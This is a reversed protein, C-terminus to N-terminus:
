EIYIIQKEGMFDICEATTVLTLAGDNETVSYQSNLILTNKYKNYLNETHKDAAVYLLIESDAEAEKYYARTIKAISVPLKISGFMMFSEDSYETYKEESKNFLGLPIKIGFVNLKKVVQVRAFTRCESNMKCVTSTRDKHLASIKGRAEVFESSTDRNEIIGSILLDGVSVGSGEKASKLGNFVELKMILGSFDAVINCPEKYTTDEREKIYDRVEVIAKTGKVNVSIWSVKGSLEMMALRSLENTDIKNKLVGETLGINKCAKIVERGSVKENGIVEVSWVFSSTFLLFSIVFCMGFLLGIRKKHRRLFFILGFKKDAKLRMGSLGAIQRLLKYKNAAIIGRVREDSYQLDKIHINNERCINVFQELFGGKATFYVVGYLFRLINLLHM